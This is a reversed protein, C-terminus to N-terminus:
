IVSANFFHAVNLYLDSSQGGSTELYASINTNLRNNVNKLTCQEMLGSSRKVLANLSLIKILKTFLKLKLITQLYSFHKHKLEKNKPLLSSKYSAFDTRTSGKWNPNGPNPM